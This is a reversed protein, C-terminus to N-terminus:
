SCIVPHVVAEVAGTKSRPKKNSLSYGIHAFINHFQFIACLYKRTDLCKVLHLERYLGALDQSQDTLVACAFGRQDLNKGANVFRILPLDIYFSLLHSEVIRVFRCRSTDRAYVLLQVDLFEQADGVIDKDILPLLAGHAKQVQFFPGM